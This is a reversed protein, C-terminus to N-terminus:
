LAGIAAHLGSAEGKLPGTHSWVLKGEADFLLSRPVPDPGFRSKVESSRIMGVQWDIDSKKMLAQVRAAKDDVALGVLAIGQASWDQQHEAWVPLEERCPACWTAWLHVLTPRGTLEAFDLVAEDTTPVKLDGPWPIEEPETTQAIPRHLAQTPPGLLSADFSHVAVQTSAGVDTWAIILKDAQIVMRPFGSKRSNSTALLDVVPGALGDPSVRRARYVADEDSLQDMWGVVFGEDLAAISVRGLSQGSAVAVAPLWSEGGDHSQVLLVDQGRAASFEVVSIHTSNVAVQPGNVPCGPVQWGSQSVPIPPGATGSSLLIASTDRLEGESRDRYVVIPDTGFMAAGTGCCDCVRADLEARATIAGSPSIQATRLTMSGGSATQRGDLWFARVGTPESLLSVFGHESPSEDEHLWGLPRWTSGDDSSIASSVGYTYPGEGLMEAWTALWMGDPGKVLQPTDAWNVFYDGGQVVTIPKDWSPGHRRSTVLKHGGETPAWWSLVLDEGDLLISPALSGLQTPPGLDAGSVLPVPVQALALKLTALLTLM